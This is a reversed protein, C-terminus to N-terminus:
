GSDYEDHADFHGPIIPIKILELFYTVQSSTNIESFIEILLFFHVPYHQIEFIKGDAKEHM